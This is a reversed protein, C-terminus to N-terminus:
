QKESVVGLDSLVFLENKNASHACLFMSLSTLNVAYAMVPQPFFLSISSVMHSRGHFVM